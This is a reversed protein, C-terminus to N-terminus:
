VYPAHVDSTWEAGASRKLGGISPIHRACIFGTCHESPFDFFALLEEEDDVLRKVVKSYKAGCQGAFAEVAARARDKDEANYVDQVARRAAEGASRRASWAGRRRNQGEHAGM